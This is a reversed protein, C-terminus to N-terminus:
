TEWSLRLLESDSLDRWTPGYRRVRRFASVSEFILTAAEGPIRVFEFAQWRVSKEDVFFRSRENEGLRTGQSTRGHAM